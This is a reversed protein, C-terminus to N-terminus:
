RDINEKKQINMIRVLAKDYNFEKIEELAKIFEIKVESQENLILKEIECIVSNYEFRRIYYITNYISQEYESKTMPKCEKDIVNRTPQKLYEYKKVAETLKMIFDMIKLFCDSEHGYIANYEGDKTVTEILKLGELLHNAGINTFISKLSHVIIHIHESKGDKQLTKLYDMNKQIDKLSIKIIHMFYASNNLAFRMGLEYDIENIENLITKVLNKDSDLSNLYDENYDYQVTRRPLWKELIAKLDKPNLPKRYVDNTGAEKFVKKINSTRQASLAIIIPRDFNKCNTRIAFSAEIGDMDPMIHDMFIIDYEIVQALEVAKKGSYAEEVDIGYLTLMASLIMANVENDDVVLAKRNQVKINNAKLIAEILLKPM